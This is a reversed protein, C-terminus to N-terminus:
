AVQLHRGGFLSSPTKIGAPSRHEITPFNIIFYNNFNKYKFIFNKTLAKPYDIHENYVSERELFSSSYM